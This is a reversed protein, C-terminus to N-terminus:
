IICNGNERPLVLVIDWTWHEKRVRSDCASEGVDYRIEMLSPPIPSYHWAVDDNAYSVIM